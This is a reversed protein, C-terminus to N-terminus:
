PDMKFVKAPGLMIHPLKGDADNRLCWDQKYDCMPCHWGDEEPILETDSCNVCTYSHLSAIQQRKRLNAVQRKTWPPKLKVSM